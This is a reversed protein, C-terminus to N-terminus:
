MAGAVSGGFEMLVKNTFKESTALQETKQAAMEAGQTTALENKTAM